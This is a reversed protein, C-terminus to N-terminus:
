TRIKKKQKLETFQEPTIDPAEESTLRQNAKEVEENKRKPISLQPINKQVEEMRDKLKDLQEQPVITASLAMSAPLVFTTLFGTIRIDQAAIGVALLAAEGIAAFKIFTNRTKRDGESISKQLDMIEKADVFQEPPIENLSRITDLNPTEAVEM